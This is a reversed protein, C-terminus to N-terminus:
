ILEDITEPSPSADLGALIWDERDLDSFYIAFASDQGAPAARAYARYTDCSFRADCELCVGRAFTRRSGPPREYLKELPVPDFQHEEILDVVRGFDDITAEVNEPTFPIPIAPEWAELEREIQVPNERCIAERLSNPLKTCIVATADLQQCRLTQWIHAYVNLQKEYNSTDARISAADHTKIDYMITQDDDRVIDVVGEIGFPRGSPSFQRPLNLHVETDTVHNAVDSLKRWYFLVQEFALRQVQPSLSHGGELRLMEFNDEFFGRLLTEIDDQQETM